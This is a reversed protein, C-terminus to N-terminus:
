SGRGCMAPVSNTAWEVITLKILNNQLNSQDSSETKNEEKSLKM